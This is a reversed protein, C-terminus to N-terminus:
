NNCTKQRCFLRADAASPVIPIIEDLGTVTFINKIKESMDFLVLTIDKEHMNNIHSIFVGIGAASIYDLERFNVLINKVNSEIVREMAQDVQISSSADLDGDLYIICSDDDMHIALEM